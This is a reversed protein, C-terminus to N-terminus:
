PTPPGPQLGKVDAGVQPYRTVNGQINYRPQLKCPPAVVNGGNLAFQIVNNRLAANLIGDVPDSVDIHISDATCHRNEFVQLGDKLGLSSGPFPYPNPRNTPLRKAYQALTEPSLPNTTRLYHV